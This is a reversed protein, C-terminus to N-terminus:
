STTSLVSTVSLVTWSGVGVPDLTPYKTTSRPKM